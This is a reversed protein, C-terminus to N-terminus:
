SDLPNRAYEVEIAGSISGDRTNARLQLFTLVRPARDIAMLFDIAATPAAVFSLQIRQGDGALALQSVSVAHVGALRRIEAGLDVAREDSAFNRLLHDREARARDLQARDAVPLGAQVALADRTDILAALQAERVAAVRRFEGPAIAVLAGFVVVALVILLPRRASDVAM